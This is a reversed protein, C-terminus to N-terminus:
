RTFRYVLLRDLDKYMMMILVPMWKHNRYHIGTHIIDPMSYVERIHHDHPNHTRSVHVDCCCYNSHGGRKNRFNDKCTMMKLLRLFRLYVKSKNIINKDVVKFYKNFSSKWINLANKAQNSNNITTQPKCRISVM